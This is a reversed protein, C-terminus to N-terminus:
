VKIAHSNLSVFEPFSEALMKIVQIAAVSVKKNKFDDFEFARKIIQESDIIIGKQWDEILVNVLQAIFNEDIAPLNIGNKKFADNINHATWMALNAIDNKDLEDINKDGFDFM